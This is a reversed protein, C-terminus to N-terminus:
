IEIEWICSERLKIRIESDSQRSVVDHIITHARTPYPDHTVNLNIPSSRIAGAIFSVVGNAEPKRAEDKTEQASIYKSWNVSMQVSGKPKPDFAVPKIKKYKDEIERDINVEHIRYFLKEDNNIIEVDYMYLINNEQNTQQINTLDM